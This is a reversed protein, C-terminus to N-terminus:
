FDKEITEEGWPNVSVSYKVQDRTVPVDPSTSGYGALVVETVAYEYNSRMAPLTIPYYNKVGGITTEFVLRTNRASWVPDSLSTVDNDTPNPCAYFVMGLPTEMSSLSVAGWSKWLFGRVPEALSGDPVLTNYWDGAVPTTDYLVSGSANILYVADLTMPVGSMTGSLFEATIGGVSVKSVLRGLHVSVTQVDLTYTGAGRGAMVLADSANERLYSKAAALQPQTSVSSLVSEPANAIVWWSLAIGKTAHLTVTPFGGTLLPSETRAYSDLTGDSRFALATLSVINSEDEALGKTAVYPVSLCLEMRERAPSAEPTKGCSALILVCPALIRLTTRITM